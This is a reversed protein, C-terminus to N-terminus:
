PDHGFRLLGGGGNTRLRLLSRTSQELIGARGRVPHAGFAELQDRVQALHAVRQARVGLSKEAVDLPDMRTQHRLDLPDLSGGAPRTGPTTAVNSGPSTAINRGSSTALSAGHARAAPTTRVVVDRTLRGAFRAPEFRWGRVIFEFHGLEDRRTLRPVRKARMDWSKGDAVWAFMREDHIRVDFTSHRLLRDHEGGGLQPDRDQPWHILM